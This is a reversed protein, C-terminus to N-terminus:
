SISEYRLLKVEFSIMGTKISFTTYPKKEIVWFKQSDESATELDSETFKFRPINELILFDQSTVGGEALQIKQTIARIYPTPLFRVWEAPADGRKSYRWIQSLTIGLRDRVGFIDELASNPIISQTVPPM